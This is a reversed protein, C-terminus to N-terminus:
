TTAKQSARAATSMTGGAVQDELEAAREQPNQRQPPPPRAHCHHGRQRRATKGQDEVPRNSNVSASACEYGPLSSRWCIKQRQSGRSIPRAWGSPRNLRTATAERHARACGAVVSRRSLPAKPVPLQVSVDGWFPHQLAVKPQQIPVM